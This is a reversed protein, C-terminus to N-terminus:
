SIRLRGDAIEITRPALRPVHIVAIIALIPDFLSDLSAAYVWTQTFTKVTKNKKGKIENIDLHIKATVSTGSTCIAWKLKNIFTTTERKNSGKALERELNIKNMCSRCYFLHTRCIVRLFLSNHIGMM